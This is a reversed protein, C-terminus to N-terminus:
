TNSQEDRLTGRLRSYAEDAAADFAPRMFPHAPAPHPGGHGYEVLHAHPASKGDLVGLKIFYKGGTQKITGTKIAAQLRGTPGKPTNAVIKEMIPKAGAQLARKIAAPSLGDLLKELDHELGDFGTTVLPM